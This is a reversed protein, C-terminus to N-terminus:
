RRSFFATRAGEALDAGIVSAGKWHAIQIAASGVAGSAGTVLVREGKQLHGAEVLSQWAALYPVGVVAAQEM